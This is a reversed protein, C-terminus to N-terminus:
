LYRSGAPLPPIATLGAHSCHVGDTSNLARDASDDDATGASLQQCAPPLPPGVASGNAESRMVRSLSPLHLLGASSDLTTSTLMARAASAGDRPPMMTLAALSPPTSSRASGLGLVTQNGRLLQLDSPPCLRALDWRHLGQLSEPPQPPSGHPTDARGVLSTRPDLALLLRSSMGAEVVAMCASCHRNPFFSDGSTFQAVM